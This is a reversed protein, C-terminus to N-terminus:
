QCDEKSSFPEFRVEGIVILYSSSMQFYTFPPCNRQEIYSEESFKLIPGIAVTALPFLAISYALVLWFSRGRSPRAILIGTLQVYLMLLAGQIIILMILWLAAVHFAAVYWVCARGPLTWLLFCTSGSNSWPAFWKSCFM